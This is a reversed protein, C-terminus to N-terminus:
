CGGTRVQLAFTADRPLESGVAEFIRAWHRDKLAKNKLATVVPLLARYEDVRARLNPVLKNTPLGREM